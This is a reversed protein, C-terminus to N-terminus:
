PLGAVVLPLYILQYVGQVWYEDAGLDPTGVRPQNDMDREVGADIGEDIAASNQGIHYNGTAEGLFSPAGSIYSDCVAGDGCRSGAHYFLTADAEIGQGWFGAVTHSTVITNTLSAIGGSCRVAYEGNSVMTWHRSVLTGGSVYVGEALSQNRAIIDNVGVVHGGAIVMGGGVTGPASNQQIDDKELTLNGDDVYLGGGGQPGSTNERIRNAALTIQSGNAWAAVGGGSSAAVNGVIDNALLMASGASIGVGAGSVASNNRILNYSATLTTPYLGDVGIGGGNGASENDEITNHDVVATGGAVFLGMPSNGAITSREVTVTAGNVFVGGGDETSTNDRVASDSVLLTGGRAGLGGGHRASRNNLITSQSITLAGNQLFVGGGGGGYTGTAVNAMVTCKHLTVNGAAVYVGGGDATPAANGRQVVLGELWIPVSSSTDVLIGRRSLVTQADLVTPRADPQSTLWDSPAYGGIVTIGKSIYVVQFGNRTYVGEAVKVTDGEHAATVASQIDAYCPEVGGCLGGPAVYLVSSEAQASSSVLLLVGALLGACLALSFRGQKDM